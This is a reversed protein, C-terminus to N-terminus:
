GVLLKSLKGCVEHISHLSKNTCLADQIPPAKKANLRQPTFVGSSQLPRRKNERKLTGNFYEDPNREPSYSPLYFVEIQSQNEDLWKKFL